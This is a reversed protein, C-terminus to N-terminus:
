VIFKLHKSNISSIIINIINNSTKIFNVKNHVRISFIKKVYKVEQYESCYNQSKSM